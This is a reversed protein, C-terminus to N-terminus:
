KMSAAPEIKEINRRVVHKKSFRLMVVNKEVSKALEKFKETPADSL